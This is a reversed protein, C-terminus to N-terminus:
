QCVPSPSVLHDLSLIVSQQQKLEKSQNGLHEASSIWLQVCGASFDVRLIVSPVEKKYLVIGSIPMQNELWDYVFAQQM